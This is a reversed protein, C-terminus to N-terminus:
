LRPAGGGVPPTSPQPWAFDSKGDNGYLSKIGIEPHVYDVDGYKPAVSADPAMSMNAPPVSMNPTPSQYSGAGNPLTTTRSSFGPGPPPVTFATGIKKFFDKLSM